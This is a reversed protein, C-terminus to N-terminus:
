PEPAQMLHFGKPRLLSLLVPCQGIPAQRKHRRSTRSPRRPLLLDELHVSASVPSEASPREVLFSEADVDGVEVGVAAALAVAVAAAVRVADAADAADAADLALAADAEVAEVAEVRAEQSRPTAETTRCRHLRAMLRDFVHQRPNAM